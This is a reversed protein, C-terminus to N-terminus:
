EKAYDLHVTFHIQQNALTLTTPHDGTTKFHNPVLIANPPLRLGYQTQIATLVQESKIAAFLKGQPNARASLKVIQDRLTTMTKTVTEAVQAKEAEASAAVQKAKALLAATPLTALGKPILFNRAYAQSVLVVQGTRGLNPVDRLLYVRLTM